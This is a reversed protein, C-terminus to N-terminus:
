VAAPGRGPLRIDAFIPSHDSIREPGTRTTSLCGPNLSTVGTQPDRIEYEALADIGRGLLWDLKMELHGEYATLRQRIYEHLRGPVWKIDELDALPASATPEPSNLGQHAFGSRAAAAFLGEKREPHLLRANIRAPPGWILRAAGALTRLRTGRPFTNANFDGGLLCPERDPTPLSAALRDMQLARCAPTNRVELHTSGVWLASRGIQLRAWVCNRGGYRKESFDFPEFCQALRVIRAELIPYRSLVANGQLSDRNEGACSRDEGTGKTLELCAPGFALNMGLERALDGAVNRNGSRIMGLDAENLLIVDAWRLVEDSEFRQLVQDFRKGKELNWQAVRVFATLRPASAALPVLLATSLLSEIEAAHASFFSSRNLSALTQYQRLRDILQRRRELLHEM